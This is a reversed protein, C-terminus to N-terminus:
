KGGPDRKFCFKPARMGTDPGHGQPPETETYTELDPPRAVRKLEMWKTRNWKRYLSEFDVSHTKASM